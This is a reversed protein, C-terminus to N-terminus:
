ISSGGAHVVSRIAVDLVQTVERVSYTKRYGHIVNRADLDGFTTNWYSDKVCGVFFSRFVLQGLVHVRVLCINGFDCWCDLSRVHMYHDDPELHTELSHGSCEEM